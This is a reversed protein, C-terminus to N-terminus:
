RKQVTRTMLMVKLLKAATQLESGQTRWGRAREACHERAADRDNWRITSLSSLDTPRQRVSQM